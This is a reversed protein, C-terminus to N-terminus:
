GKDLYKIEKPIKMPASWEEKQIPISKGEDPPFQRKSQKAVKCRNSLAFEGRSDGVVNRTNQIAVRHNGDDLRKTLRGRETQPIAHLRQAPACRSRNNTNQIVSADDPLRIARRHFEGSKRLTQLPNLM